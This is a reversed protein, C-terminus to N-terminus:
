RTTRGRTSASASVNRGTNRNRIRLRLIRIKKPRRTGSGSGNSLPVSRSGKMILCFYCSFGRNMSKTSNKKQRKLKIFSTFIGELKLLLCSFRNWFLNKTPTKFTLSSFLLIRIRIWLDFAHSRPDPDPDVSFYWPDAVSTEAAGNHLVPRRHPPPHLQDEHPQRHRAHMRPITDWHRHWLPHLGARAPTLFLM